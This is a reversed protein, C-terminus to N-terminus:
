NVKNQISPDFFINSRLAEYKIIKANKSADVQFHKEKSEGFFKLFDKHHFM